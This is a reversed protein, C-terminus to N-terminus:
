KDASLVQVTDGDSVGVVTYTGAWATSAVLLALPVVWRIRHFQEYM